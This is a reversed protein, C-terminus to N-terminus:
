DYFGAGSFPADRDCVSREGDRRCGMKRYCVITIIYIFALFGMMLYGNLKNDKDNAVGPNDDSTQTLDFIKVMQWIAVTIFVLVIITLLATM